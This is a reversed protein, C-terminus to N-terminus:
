QEGRLQVVRGNYQEDHHIPQLVGRGPIGAADRHEAITIEISDRIRVIDGAAGTLITIPITHWVLASISRTLVIAIPIPNRIHAFHVAILVADGIRTLWSEITIM